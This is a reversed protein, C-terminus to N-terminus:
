SSSADYSTKIKGILRNELQRVAERTISYKDGIEQLTLPEDALLRNNLIYLEKESLQDRIKDLNARLLNLEEQHGIQEDVSTENPSKQLDMLSTQSEDDLPQNLSVDRGQLRQQMIEIEQEPIGMRSSLLAFDPAQGLAELEDKQKQLNYFLKRQNQTTGIRVMSYQKMMYEQIYGRIWWVAYTILRVGKYPNFERVAQML